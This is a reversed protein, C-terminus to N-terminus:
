KMCVWDIHKQKRYVNDMGYAFVSKDHLHRGFVPANMDIHKLCATVAKRIIGSISTFENKDYDIPVRKGGRVQKSNADLLAVDESIMNNLRESESPDDDGIDEVMKSMARLRIETEMIQKADWVVDRANATKRVQAIMETEEEDEGSFIWDAYGDIKEGAPHVGRVADLLDKPSFQIDPHRILYTIYQAGDTEPMLFEVGGYVVGWRVCERREGEGIRLYKGKAMLAFKAAAGHTMAKTPVTEVQRKMREVLELKKAASLTGDARMRVYGRLEIVFGNNRELLSGVEASYDPMLVVIPRHSYKQLLTGVAEVQEGASSVCVLFIWADTDGTHIHGLHITGVQGAYSNRGRDIGLCGSLEQYFDRARFDLGEAVDTPVIFSPCSQEDCDCVYTVDTKKIGARLHVCGCHQPCLLQEVPMGTGALYRRSFATFDPGCATTWDRRAEVTGRYLGVGSWFDSRQPM